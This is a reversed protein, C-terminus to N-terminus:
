FQWGLKLYANRRIRSRAVGDSGGFELHTGNLLNQGALTLSVGPLLPGGIRIDLRSYGPVNYSELRGVRALSADLQWDRKLNLQSSLQWQQTPDRLPVIIGSPSRIDTLATHLRGYQADVRWIRTAQWRGVAEVGFSRGSMGDGYQSLLPTITNVTLLKDYVNYFGTVDFALGSHPETRYGTQYAVTHETKLSAGGGRVAVTLVEGGPGLV